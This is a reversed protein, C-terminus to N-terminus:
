LVWTQWVFCCLMLAQVIALVFLIFGPRRFKYASSVGIFVPVAALLHRPLSTYPVGTHLSLAILVVAVCYVKYSTRLHRWGIILMSIFILALLANGYASSHLGGRWYAKLALWLASWPPLFAQDQFVQYHSPSIMVSYIFRQPSSFDPQVDNIAFARYAIWIVYGLPILALALWHRWNTFCKRLSRDSGEWIEVALPLVLFLGAQRTLSALGGALGALLYRRTRGAFLCGVSLLLFLSETYPVLIAVTAPWVLLLATSTWATDGDQDLLALRYFAGTLLLGCLSSVILLSVVPSRVFVNVLTALWPYLPHFGSTIDWSQYGIRVIRLYYETDYSYWPLLIFAKWSSTARVRSNYLLAFSAIPFSILRLLLWLTVPSGKFFNRLTSAPIVM